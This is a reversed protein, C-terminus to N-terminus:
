VGKPRLMQRLKDFKASYDQEPLPRQIGTSSNRKASNYPLTATVFTISGYDNADINHEARWSRISDWAEQILHEQRTFFEVTTITM